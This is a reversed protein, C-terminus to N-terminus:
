STIFIRRTAPESLVINFNSATNPNRIIMNLVNASSVVTDSRGVYTQSYYGEAYVSDTNDIWTGSFVGSANTVLGSLITEDYLSSVVRHINITVGSAVAGGVYTCTGSLTYTISNFTYYVGFYSFSTPGTDLRYKRAGEVDLREPDPDGVWRRFSTRAASYFTCNMNEVDVRGQGVYLPLWGDRINENALIEASLNLAQDPVTTVAAPGISYVAYNVYGILYYNTAAIQCAVQANSKSVRTATQGSMVYQFCTHAHAGVGGSHVGSTYNLILQGSVNWGAQATNSYIELSYLNSGRQLFLGKGNQGGADIRHWLSYQGCQITGATVVYASVATQGSTNGSVAVNLTFGASDIFYLGIGSEKITITNPEEIYITREYVDQDAATPGGIWGSQNIAGLILSNYITTSGTANYEYTCTVTGGLLMFTTALSSVAALEYNTSGTLAPTTIDIWSHAWRASNLNGGLYGWFDKTGTGGIRVTGTYNTNAATGEQAQLDLFIQRITIGTEPLYTGHFPPIALTGGITQYSATLNTRTSEIPIRITKIQTNSTSEEYQYTITIKASHNNLTPGTGTFSAYWNMAIGTWNSTFYTTVDRSIQWTEAEGSTAVPNQLAASSEAAVGLSFGITPATLSTATAAGTSVIMELMCSRFTLTLEPIFIQTTGTLTRKVTTAVTTAPINSSIFEITKTRLAM